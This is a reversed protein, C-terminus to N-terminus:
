FFTFVNELVIKQVSKAVSNSVVNVRGDEMREEVEKLGMEKVKFVLFGGGIKREGNCM